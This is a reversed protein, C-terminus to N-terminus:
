NWEWGDQRVKLDAQESDQGVDGAANVQGNTMAGPSARAPTELGFLILDGEIDVVTLAVADGIHIVEGVSLDFIM